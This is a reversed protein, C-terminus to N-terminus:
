EISLCKQLKLGQRCINISIEGLPSSEHPPSQVGELTQPTTAQTYCM